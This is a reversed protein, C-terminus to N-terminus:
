GRRGELALRLVEESHGWGDVGATDFFNVGLDVGKRGADISDADKTPGYSNGHADRGIAWAGFGIESVELGTRGLARRRMPTRVSGGTLVNGTGQASSGRENNTEEEPMTLYSSIPFSIRLSSNLHGGTLAPNARLRNRMCVLAMRTAMHRRTVAAVATKVLGTACPFVRILSWSVSSVPGVDM